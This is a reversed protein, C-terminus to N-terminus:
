GSPEQLSVRQYGQSTRNEKTCSQKILKKRVEDWQIIAKHQGQGM